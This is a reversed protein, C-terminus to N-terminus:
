MRIEEWLIFLHMTYKMTYARHTHIKVAVFEFM